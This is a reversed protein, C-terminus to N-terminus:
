FSYVYQMRRDFRISNAYQLLTAYQLELFKWACSTITYVERIKTWVTSQFYFDILCDKFDMDYKKLHDVDANQHAGDKGQRMSFREPSGPATRYGGCVLSWINVKIVDKAVPVIDVVVVM